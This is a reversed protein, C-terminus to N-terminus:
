QSDVMKLKGSGEPENTLKYAHEMTRGDMTWGDVM